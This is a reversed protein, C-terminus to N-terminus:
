CPKKNTENFRKAQIHRIAPPHLEVEERSIETRLERALRNAIMLGAAGAGLILIRKM